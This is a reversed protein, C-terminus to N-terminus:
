LNLFSSYGVNEILKEVLAQTYSRFKSKLLVTVQSLQEGLVRKKEDSLYSNWEEFRAETSTRLKDLVRKMSNLFVGLQLM